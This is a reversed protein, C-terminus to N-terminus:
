PQLGCWRPLLPRSLPRQLTPILTQQSTFSPPRTTAHSQSVMFTLSGCTLRITLGHTRAVMTIVSSPKRSWFPTGSFMFIQLFPVHFSRMHTSVANDITVTMQSTFRIRCRSAADMWARRATTAAMNLARMSTNGMSCGSASGELILMASNERQFRAGITILIGQNSTSTLPMIPSLDTGM